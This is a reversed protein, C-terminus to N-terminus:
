FTFDHGVATPRHPKGHILSVISFKGINQSILITHSEVESVQSVKFGVYCFFKVDLLNKLLTVSCDQAVAHLGM